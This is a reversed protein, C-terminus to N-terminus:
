ITSPALNSSAVGVTRLYHEGVQALRGEQRQLALARIVEGGTGTLPGKSLSQLITGVMAM